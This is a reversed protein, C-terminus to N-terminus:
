VTSIFKSPSFLTRLELRKPHIKYLNEDNWWQGEVLNGLAWRKRQKQLQMGASEMHAWEMVRTCQSGFDCKHNLLLFNWKKFPTIRKMQHGHCLSFNSRARDLQHSLYDRDRRWEFGIRTIVCSWNLGHPTHAVWRYLVFRLSWPEGKDCHRNQRQDPPDRGTLALDSHFQSSGVVHLNTIDNRAKKLPFLIAIRDVAVVRVCTGGKM